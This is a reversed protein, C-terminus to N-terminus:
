KKLQVPTALWQHLINRMELWSYFTEDKDLYNKYAYETFDIAVEEPIENMVTVWGPTHRSGAMAFHFLRNYPNFELRVVQTEVDTKM